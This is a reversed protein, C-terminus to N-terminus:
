ERRTLRMSSMTPTSLSAPSSPSIAFSASPTNAASTSRAGATFIRPPCGGPRSSRLAAVFPPLTIPPWQPQTSPREAGTSMRSPTCSSLWSSPM